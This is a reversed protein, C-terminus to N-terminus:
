IILNLINDRKLEHMQPMIKKTNAGLTTQM